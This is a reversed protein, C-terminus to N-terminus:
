KQLIIIYELSSEKVELVKFGAGIARELVKEKGESYLVHREKKFLFPFYFDIHVSNDVWKKRILRTLLGDWRFSTGEKKVTNNWYDFIFVGDSSLLEQINKFTVSLNQSFNMVHFLSIATDFKKESRYTDFDGIEADIGKRHAAEVMSPGIDVVKVQFGKEKLVLAHGGTGGGIDVVSTGRMFPLIKAVEEAYPKERYLRDYVEASYQEKSNKEM